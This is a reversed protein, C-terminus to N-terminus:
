FLFQLSFQVSSVLVLCALFFFRLEQLRLGAVSETLQLFQVTRWKELLRAALREDM